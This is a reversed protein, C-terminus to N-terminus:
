LIIELENLETKWNELHFRLIREGNKLLQLREDLQLAFLYNEGRYKEQYAEVLDKEQKQFTDELYGSLFLYLSEEDDIRVRILDERRSSYWVAYHACGADMLSFSISALIVLYANLKEAKKQKDSKYDLFVVVPCAKPLSNEKVLLEDLKASLKWHVSQIKDGGQFERIQFLENHDEGPRVDDYVDADGFFNRSAQSLHVGIEQMRPLVQVSGSCKVNKHFYFLGTLDYIRLKKLSVTYSGYDDIVLAYDFSNNGSPAMGGLLWKKQKRNLFHNKQELLCRFKLCPLFGRNELHIRVTLPKGCEAISIPFTISCRVTHMRYVLFLCASVLLLAGAYGFLILSTSKYLVSIYFLAGTVVIGLLINLM